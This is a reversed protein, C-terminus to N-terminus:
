EARHLPGQLHGAADAPAPVRHGALSWGARERLRVQLHDLIAEVHAWHRSLKEPCCDLGQGRHGLWVVGRAPPSRRSSSTCGAPATRASIVVTQPSGQPPLLPFCMNPHSLSPDSSDTLAALLEQLLTFVWSLFPEKKQPRSRLTTPSKWQSM